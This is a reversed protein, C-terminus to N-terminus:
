VVSCKPNVIQNNPRQFKWRNHTWLWLHPQDLINQELLRAYEETIHESQLPILKIHYFGRKPSTIYAYFCPFGFKKGLVESGNLFATDQNLFTTWVHANRPSPKQDALMGYMANVKSNRLQIMRRLLVDKEICEGGRQARIDLMLQNFYRNKLRRYVNCEVVGQTAYRRGFDAAWEWTGIHALMTIAGGHELCAQALIDDHEYTIRERIEADSISYGYITEVILDAFSHYFRKRLEDRQQQSWDPFANRLNKDVLKRRYRVGYYVLPYILWDALFHHVRLPLKGLINLGVHKM